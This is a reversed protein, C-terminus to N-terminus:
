KPSHEGLRLTPLFIGNKEKIHGSSTLRAFGSELEDPNFIAHNIGDGVAIVRWILVKAERMFLQSFCGPM